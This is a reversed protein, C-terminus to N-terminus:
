AAPQDGPGAPANYFAYRGKGSSKAQYMAVDAHRLLTPVDVGDRPYFSIGVSAQSMCRGADALVFQRSMADVIREAVQVVEQAEVNELVITFEDGGLRALKDNARIASALRRSASQLLMDGAAHGLTDNVKKFDDLDIFMVAMTTGTQAARALAQPLFNMVWFRNPLGTLADAHAMKSLTEQHARADSIDRMTVALGSGSRVFRRHLWVKGAHGEPTADVEDEHYGVTMARRCVAMLAHVQPREDLEAFRNGLLEQKSAGAYAAGRENCDEVVFDILANSEDFIGRVMFFGERGGDMALRYTTRIDDAIQKRWALRASYAMGTVALMLLLANAVIAAMLYDQALRDYGAYIDPEALGAVSILPYNELAQWAVARAIGDALANGPLRVVGTGTDFPPQAEFLAASKGSQDGRRAVLLAGDPRVIAVFDSKGMSASDQFSALYSPPVCVSIMGDFGDAADLLARSFCILDRGTLMGMFPGNIQLRDNQRRQIARFDARTAINIPKTATVTAKLLNGNRDFVAAQLAALLPAQGIQLQSAFGLDGPSKQWHYRLNLSIHDLNQLMHSMQDAYAAALASARTLGAAEAANRETQLRHHLM